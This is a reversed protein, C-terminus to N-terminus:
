EVIKEESKISVTGFYGLIRKESDNVYYLNGKIPAPSVAANTGITTTQSKLETLFRFAEPSIEIIELRAHDGLQFEYSTFDQRIGNNGDVFRDSFLFIEEPQNFLTDNRYVKWRYFNHEGPPDDSFAVPFYVTIEEQPDEEDERVFSDFGLSDITPVQPMREPASRVVEGSSLVVELFYYRGAVGGPGNYEYLGRGRNTYDFTENAGRVTVTADDIRVSNEPADFATTFSLKIKQAEAQDTFWGEVVLIPEVPEFPIEDADVCSFFLFLLLSIIGSHKM